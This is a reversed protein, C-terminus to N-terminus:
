QEASLQTAFAEPTTCDGPRRECVHSTPPGQHKTWRRDAGSGTSFLPDMRWHSRGDSEDCKERGNGIHAHDNAREQVLDSPV